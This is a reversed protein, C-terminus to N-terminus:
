QLQLSDDISESPRVDEVDEESFDAANLSRDSFVQKRISYEKGSVNSVPLTGALMESVRARIVSKPVWFVDSLLDVANLRDPIKQYEDRLAGGPVLLANSLVNIEHVILADNREPLNFMSRESHLVIRAIERAVAIRTHGRTEGKRFRISYRGPRVRSSRALKDSVERQVIEIFPFVTALEPVHVPVSRIDARALLESALNALLVTRERLEGRLEPSLSNEIRRLNETETFEFWAEEFDLTGDSIDHLTEFDVDLARSLAELAYVSKVAKKGRKWHSTDSANFQLINGVDQDHTKASDQRQQLVALCFRFLLASQPFRDAQPGVRM